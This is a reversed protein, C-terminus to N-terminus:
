YREWFIKWPRFRFRERRDGSPRNLCFPQINSECFKGFQEVERGSKSSLIPKSVLKVVHAGCRCCTGEIWDLEIHDRSINCSEFSPDVM